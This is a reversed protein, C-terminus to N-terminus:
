YSGHEGVNMSLLKKAFSEADSEHSQSMRNQSICAITAAKFVIAWARFANNDPANDLRISHESAIACAKALIAIDDVAIRLTVIGRKIELDNGLQQKKPKPTTM